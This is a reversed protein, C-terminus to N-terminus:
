DREGVIEFGGSNMLSRAFARFRDDDDVILVSRHM